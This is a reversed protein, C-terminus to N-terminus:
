GSVWGLAVAGRDLERERESGSDFKPRSTTKRKGWIKERIQHRSPQQDAPTFQIFNQNKNIQIQQAEPNFNQNFNLQIQQAEPNNTQQHSKYTPKYEDTNTTL